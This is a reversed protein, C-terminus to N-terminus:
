RHAPHGFELAWYIGADNRPNVAVGVGAQSYDPNMINACHEPSGLWGMVVADAGTVGSALNEGTDSWRYGSRTIREQPASGDRGTHDMYGFAAMDQAYDQAAHELLPDRTLAPAAPYTATGCRHAAARAANLLQLVRDSIAGHDLQAVPILPEAFAVWVDSGRRWIGIERYSPNTAQPCFQIEIIHKVDGDVPVDAISLSYSSVAHYGAQQQAAHLSAGAAVRRAVEDLRPNQQLPQAKSGGVCGAARVSNVSEVVDARAWLPALLLLWLLARYQCRTTPDTM